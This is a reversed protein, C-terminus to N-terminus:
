GSKPPPTTLADPKATFRYGVGPETVIITPTEPTEEIKQRLHRIHVRLSQIDAEDPGCWAKAILHRHTLVKGAHVALERLVAYERPTLKPDEGDVRVLRKVLDIRLRGDDYVPTGGQKNM